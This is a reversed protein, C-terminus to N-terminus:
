EESLVVAKESKLLPLSVSFTQTTVIVDVPQNALLDYRNRINSLGLGTSDTPQNKRQLNNRVIVRDREVMVEILLPKHTSVINHKVANEVLMQLSLPVIRDTLYADPVDFRVALNDGFRIQLLFVYAKLATLEDGFPVTQVDRIELIYRYVKSMKQVFEVALDADDPIISALTNLSNFLFHPNVQNKLTELQSQLNEQKLQEAELLAAQLQKFYFVSEYIALCTILPVLSSTYKQVITIPYQEHAPLLWDLGANVFHCAPLTFGLALVVLWFLRQNTQAMFPFRRRTWYYIARNAEWYIFTHIIGFGWIPLYAVLGNSLTADFFVLPVVFAVVPIGILRFWRDDFRISAHATQM